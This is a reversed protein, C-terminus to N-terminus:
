IGSGTEAELRAELESHISITGSTGRKSRTLNSVRVTVPVEGDPMPLQVVPFDGVAAAFIDTQRQDAFQALGIALAM